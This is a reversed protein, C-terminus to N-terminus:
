SLAVVGFCVALVASLPAMVVREHRSRSVLNQPVSLVLFGTAVWALVSRAGAPVVEVVGARSLVVLALLVYVGVSVLSGLRLLAPLVEHQGGWLFRGWPLGAVAGLQVVALAGLLVTAVLALLESM